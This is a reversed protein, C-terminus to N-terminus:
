VFVRGLCERIGEFALSPCGGGRSCLVRVGRMSDADLCPVQSTGDGCSVGGRAICRRPVGRGGVGSVDWSVTFVCYCWEGVPSFMVVAMSTSHGRHWMASKTYKRQVVHLYQAMCWGSVGSMTGRRTYPTIDGSVKYGLCSDQCPATGAVVVCVHVAGCGCVVLGCGVVIPVQFPHSCSTVLSTSTSGFGPGVGNPGEAFHM